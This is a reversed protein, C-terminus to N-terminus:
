AIEAIQSDKASVQDDTGGGPGPITLVPCTSLRVVKETVSGFIFRRWGTWGHTATVIIDVKEAEAERVIEDAPQGGVVKTRVAVGGPVRNKVVDEFLRRAMTSMQEYHEQVTYSAPTEPEAIGVVPQVVNILILEASSAQALEGAAKLGEFSPKSFDIPCLIKKLPFM